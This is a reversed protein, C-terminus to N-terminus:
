NGPARHLSYLYRCSIELLYKREIELLDFCYDTVDERMRVIGGAPLHRDKKDVVLPDPRIVADIGAFIVGRVYQSKVAAILRPHQNGIDHDRNFGGDGVRAAVMGSGPIFHTEIHYVSQQMEDAVVVTAGCLSFYHMLFGNMEQVANM